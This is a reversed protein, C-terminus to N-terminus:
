KFVKSAQIPKGDIENENTWFAKVIKKTEDSVPKGKETLAKWTYWNADDNANIMPDVSHGRLLWVGAIELLTQETGLVDMVGFAWRRIEETRQQFGGIANSTMFIKKNDENHNYTQLWLSWGEGDFADWFADMATDYDKANSYTKKWADINFPSPAERDMVKYPHEAKKAPAPAPSPAAEKDKKPPEQKKDGGKKGSALASQGPAMMEKKCMQVTGIVQQFEPQNVCTQFWRTVNGFPKLYNKDVVLKFPYVLTSVVVIDALTIQDQV